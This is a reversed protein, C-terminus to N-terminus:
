CQHLGPPVEFVRQIEHAAEPCWQLVALGFEKRNVAGTKCSESVWQSPLEKTTHHGSHVYVKHLDAFRLPVSSVILCLLVVAQADNSRYDSVPLPVGSETQRSTIYM